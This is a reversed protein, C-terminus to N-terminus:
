LGSIGMPEASKVNIVGLYQFESKGPIERPLISCMKQLQLCEVLECLVSKREVQCGNAHNMSFIM